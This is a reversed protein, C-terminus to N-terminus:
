MQSWLSHLFVKFPTVKQRIDQLDHGNEQPVAIAHWRTSQSRRAFSPLVLM